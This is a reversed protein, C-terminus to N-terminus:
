KENNVKKFIIHPIGIKRKQGTKEFIQVFPQAGSYPLCIYKFAIQTDMFDYNGNYIVLLGGDNLKSDLLSVEEEFQSFPYINNFEINQTDPWRCLVSMAFIVDVKELIQSTDNYFFVNDHNNKNRAVFLAEDNIDVGMITAQPFYLEKLTFCEEGSSCGFSLVRAANPLYEVADAFVNPYRNYQTTTHTQHLPM